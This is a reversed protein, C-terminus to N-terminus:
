GQFSRFTLQIIFDDAYRTMEFGEKAMAWDLGNLYINALLPSIVGGQPTGAVTEEREGNELVGAKLMQEILDLVRRDAIMEKVLEMLKDQDICDFYSRIDADVTYVYGAKLTRDVRRLADKCCRGPRFGFSHEAFEREFIPEIVMKVATQVVRDRVTPIGLPRKESKSGAKPIWVRKIEQHKYTQNKLHEKVALLRSQSDKEFWDVTIGDVGCGGANARVKEWAISLTEIRYVKDILSFWKRGESGRELASLMKDSWVRPEAYCKRGSAEGNQRGAEPVQDPQIEENM